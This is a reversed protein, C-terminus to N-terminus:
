SLKKKMCISYEENGIYPGYNSINTYGLKGYLHIAEPQNTGTELVMSSIKLEAAWKELESLIAAGIGKGRQEDCVYMRKIEVSGEDFKKFCGCGVAENDFYAIVVTPINQIANFRNYFTQLDGYRDLLDKDLSEVLMHFDTDDSTTRKIKLM